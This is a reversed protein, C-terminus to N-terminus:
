KAKSIKTEVIAFTAYFDSIPSCVYLEIPKLEHEALLLRPNLDWYGRSERASVWIVVDIM